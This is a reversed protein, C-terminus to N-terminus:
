GFLKEFESSNIPKNFTLHGCVKPEDPPVTGEVEDCHPCITGVQHWNMQFCMEALNLQQQVDLNQNIVQESDPHLTDVVMYTSSPDDGNSFTSINAHYCSLIFLADKWAATNEPKIVFM